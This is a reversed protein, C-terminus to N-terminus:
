LLIISVDHWGCGSYTRRHVRISVSLWRGHFVGRSQLLREAVTVGDSVSVAFM